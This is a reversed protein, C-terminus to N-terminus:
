KKKNRSAATKNRRLITSEPEENRFNTARTGPVAPQFLKLYKRVFFL